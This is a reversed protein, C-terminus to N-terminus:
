NTGTKRNIQECHIVSRLSSNGELGSQVSGPDDCARPLIVLGGNFVILISYSHHMVRNLCYFLRSVPFVRAPVSIHCYFRPM